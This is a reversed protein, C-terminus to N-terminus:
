ETFIEEFYHSWDSLENVTYVSLSDRMRSEYQEFVERLRVSSPTPKIAIFSYLQSIASLDHLTEIFVGNDAADNEGDSLQVIYINYESPSYQKKIIEQALMTGSSLTTGGSTEIRFFKDATVQYALNDHVIFESELSNGYTRKLVNYLINSGIKALQRKDSTMSGSVDMIFFIVAKTINNIEYYDTRYRLDHKEFMPVQKAKLKRLEEKLEKIRNNIEESQPLEKLRELEEEISRIKRRLAAELAKKRILSEKVTRIKDLKAPTGETTYGGRHKVMDKLKSAKPKLNPLTIDGLIIKELEEPSLDIEDHDGGAQGAGSSMSSQQEKRVLDGVQLSKNGVSIYWYVGDERNYNFEYEHLLHHGKLRINSKSMDIYSKLYDSLISKISESARTLYKKRNIETQRDDNERRDIFKDAM